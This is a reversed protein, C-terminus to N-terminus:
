HKGPIHWSSNETSGQFTGAPIKLNISGNDSALFDAETKGLGTTFNIIGGDLAVIGNQVIGNNGKSFDLNISGNRTALVGFTDGYIHMDGSKDHFCDLVATHNFTATDGDAAGVYIGLGTANKTRDHGAIMFSNSSSTFSGNLVRFGYTAFEETSQHAIGVSYLELETIYRINGNLVEIAAVYPTDPSLRQTVAVTKLNGYPLANYVADSTFTEATFGGTVPRSDSVKPSLYHNTNETIGHAFSSFSSSSIILSLIFRQGFASFKDLILDSPRDTSFCVRINSRLTSLVLPFKNKYPM